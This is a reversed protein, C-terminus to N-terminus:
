AIVEVVLVAGKGYGEAHLRFTVCKLNVSEGKSSIRGSDPEEGIGISNAATDM